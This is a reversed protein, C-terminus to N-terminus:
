RAVGVAKGITAPDDLVALMAHAVDARSITYGHPLNANVAMRYKGSLPRNTLRPPRVVTWHTASHRIDDEMKVLDAYIDRLLTTILPHVIRRNLWGDDDPPPAVPAASVAAFRRVGTADLAALIVKTTASAVGADKRRRPGLGSIVADTGDLASQLALPDTLGLVRVVELSPHDLDFGSSDRVVATVKHGSDLAQRVASGGIGGNAGFVTLKM